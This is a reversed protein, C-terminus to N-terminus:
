FGIPSSKSKEEILSATIEEAATRIDESTIISLMSKTLRKSSIVRNAACRKANDFLNRAERGNGFNDGKMERLKDFFSNIEDHYEGIVTFKNKRIISDFINCLASNDYTAFNITTTIRSSMGPNSNIFDSMKGRYGAFICFVSSRYNEMNQTICNIAETDFSTNNKESLTYIEDFFIVGGGKSHLEQFLSDVKQATHGVYQGVIDSKRCERFNETSPIIGREALVKAFERAVTTKATGPQGAFVMNCGSITSVLGKKKREIDFELLNVAGNVLRLENELGVLGNAKGVTSDSVKKTSLYKQFDITQLVPLQGFLELHTNMVNKIAAVAQYENQVSPHKSLRTINKRAADNIVFGNKKLQDTIYCAMDSSNEKPIDIYTYHLQEAAQQPTLPEQNTEFFPLTLLAKEEDKMEEAYLVFCVRIGENDFQFIDRPNTRHYLFISAENDDPNSGENECIEGAGTDTFDQKGPFVPVLKINVMDPLKAMNVPTTRDVLYDGIEYSYKSYIMNCIGIAAILGDNLSHSHIFYHNTYKDSFTDNNLMTSMRNILNIVESFRPREKMITLIENNLDFESPCLRKEKEFRRSYECTLTKM